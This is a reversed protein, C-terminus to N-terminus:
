ASKLGQYISCKMKKIQNFYDRPLIFKQKINGIPTIKGVLNECPYIDGTYDIYISNTGAYCNNTITKGKYFKKFIKVM